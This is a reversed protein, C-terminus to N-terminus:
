DRVPEWGPGPDFAELAEGLEAAHPGLDREYLTGHHSVIFSKEGTRGPEAPWAVLACGAVMNGNLVYPHAGGPAHPGQRTLVKMRYGHWPSSPTRTAVYAPDAALVLPGLPSPREGSGEDVRWYLGDRRGESSVLRQAYERVGDGDRDASAYEAQATLYARCAAIAELENRAVRRKVIEQGGAAADFRWGGADRVLPIPFPWEDEGVLLIRSGDPGERLRRGEQCAAHFRMRNSRDEAPDSTTLAELHESGFIAALAETGEEPCAALLAEVAAEPTPFRQPGAEAPPAALAAAGLAILAVVLRPRAANRRDDSSM